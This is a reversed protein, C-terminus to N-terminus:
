REGARDTLTPDAPEVARNAAQWDRYQGRGSLALVGAALLLIGQTAFLGGVFLVAEVDGPGPRSFAAIALALVLELFGLPISVIGFELMDEGIGRVTRIGAVFAWLAIAFIWCGCAIFGGAGWYMAAASMLGTGVMTVGGVGIWIWGAIRVGLPFRTDDEDLDTSM